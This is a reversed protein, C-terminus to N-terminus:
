KFTISSFNFSSTLDIALIFWNLLPLLFWSLAQALVFLNLFNLFLAAIVIIFGASMLYPVTWGVLINSVPAMFSIQHFHYLIIPTTFIQASLTLKLEGIITMALGRLPRPLRMLFSSQKTTAGSLPAGGRLSSPFPKAFLMIGLTAFFSLQFGVDFIIQPDALILIIGTILLSILPIIQRGFLIAVMALSGMIGARVVSASPGVFLIFVIIAIISFFGAQRKGLPKFLLNLFAILFTINTGSLAIIHLTGTKQLGLYFDKPMNAKTGVLIGSLLSAQPEPYLKKVTQDIFNTPQNLRTFATKPSKPSTITNPSLILNLVRVLFLLTFCAIFFRM